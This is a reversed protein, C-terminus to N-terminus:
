RAVALARAVPPIGRTGRGPCAGEGEADEEMLAALREHVRRVSGDGALREAENRHADHAARM